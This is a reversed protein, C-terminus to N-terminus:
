PPRHEHRVRPRRHALRLLRILPLASRGGLPELGLLVENWLCLEHGSVGRGDGELNGCNKKTGTGTSCHQPDPDAHIRMMKPVRIGMRTCDADSSILIRIRMLFFDPDPDADFHYTPDAVSSYRIQSIRFRKSTSKKVEPDPIRSLFFIRILSGPHVIFM